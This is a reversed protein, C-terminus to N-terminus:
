RSPGALILVFLEKATPKGLEEFREVFLKCGTALGHALQEGPKLGLDLPEGLAEAGGAHEFVEGEAEAVFEGLEDSTTRLSVGSSTITVEAPRDLREGDANFITLNEWNIGGDLFDGPTLQQNIEAKAAESPEVIMETSM